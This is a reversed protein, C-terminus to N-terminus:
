SGLSGAKEPMELLPTASRHPLERQAEILQPSPVTQSRQLDLRQQAELVDIQGNIATVSIETKGNIAAVQWVTPISRVTRVAPHILDLLQKLVRPVCCLAGTGVLWPLAKMLSPFNDLTHLLDSPNLFM